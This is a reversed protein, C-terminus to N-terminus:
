LLHVYDKIFSHPMVHTKELNPRSEVVYLSIGQLKIRSLENHYQYVTIQVYKTKARKHRLTVQILTINSEQLLVLLVSMVWIPGGCKLVFRMGDQIRTADPVDGNQPNHNV